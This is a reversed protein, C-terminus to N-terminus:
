PMTQGVKWTFAGAIWLVTKAELPHHLSALEDAAHRFLEPGTCGEGLAKSPNLSSYARKLELEAPVLDPDREVEQFNAVVDMLRGRAEECITKIGQM